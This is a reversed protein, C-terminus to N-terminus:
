KLRAGRAALEVATPPEAPPLVEPITRQVPANPLVLRLYKAIFEDVRM